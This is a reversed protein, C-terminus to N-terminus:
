PFAAPCAPNPLAFVVNDIAVSIPSAGGTAATFAFAGTGRPTTPIASVLGSGDITATVSGNVVVVRASHWAGGSTFNPLPLTSQLHWNFTGPSQAPDLGVISFSPTLPDGIAVNQFADLILANGGTSKPLGLGLGGVAAGLSTSDRDFWAFALGDATVVQGGYDLFYQFEARFTGLPQSAKFILEAQQAGALPTLTVFDGNAGGGPTDSASGVTTWANSIGGTFDDNVIVLPGCADADVAADTAADAADTGTDKVPADPTADPAADDHTAGDNADATADLTADKAADPQGTGGDGASVGLTGTLDLGCAAASAALSLVFLLRTPRM